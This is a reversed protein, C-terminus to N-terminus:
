FKWGKSVFVEDFLTPAIPRGDRTLVAFVQAELVRKGDAKRVIAQDFVFRLRGQKRMGLKVIFIDRPRLPLKYDMEIRTVVADIGDACFQAFDIGTAQLFEHRAHELYNQYVANNVIGQLDCEYDRVMMETEFVYSM